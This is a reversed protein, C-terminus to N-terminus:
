HSYPSSISYTGPVAPCMQFGAYIAGEVGVKIEHQGDKLDYLRFMVPLQTKAHIRERFGFLPKGDDSVIILGQWDRKMAGVLIFRVEAVDGRLSFSRPSLVIWDTATPVENSCRIQSWQKIESTSLVQPTARAPVFGILLLLLVSRLKRKM